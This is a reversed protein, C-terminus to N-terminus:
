KIPTPQYAFLRMGNITKRWVSLTRNKLQMPQQQLLLNAELDAFVLITDQFEVINKIDYDVKNFVYYKNHLKEMYSFLNDQKGSSHIYTLSEDCLNQFAQYDKDILAKFRLKEVEKIAQFYDM